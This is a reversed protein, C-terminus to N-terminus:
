INVSAQKRVGGTPDPPGGGFFLPSYKYNPKFNLMNAGIVNSSSPTVERFKVLSRLVLGHQYRPCLNPLAFFTWFEFRNRVFNSKSRSYVQFPDVCRFDSFQMM